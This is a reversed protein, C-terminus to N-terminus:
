LGSGSPCRDPYGRHKKPAGTNMTKFLEDPAIFSSLVALNIKRDLPTVLPKLWPFAFSLQIPPGSAVTPPVV